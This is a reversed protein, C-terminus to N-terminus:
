SETQKVGNKELYCRHDVAIDQFYEVSGM